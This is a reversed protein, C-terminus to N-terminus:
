PTPRDPDSEKRVPQKRIESAQTLASALELASLLTLDTFVTTCSHERGSRQCTGQRHSNELQDAKDHLYTYFFRRQVSSYALYDGDGPM